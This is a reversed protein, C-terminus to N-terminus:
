YPVPLVLLSNPDATTVIRKGKQEVEVKLMPLSLSLSFVFQFFFTCSFFLFFFLNFQKRTKKQGCAGKKIKKKGRREKNRNGWGMRCGGSGGGGGCGEQPIRPSLPALPSWQLSLPVCVVPVPHLSMPSNSSPCAPLCASGGPHMPHLSSSGWSPPLSQKPPLGTLPPLLTVPRAGRGGQRGGLAQVPPGLSFPDQTEPQSPGRGLWPFLSFGKGKTGAESM